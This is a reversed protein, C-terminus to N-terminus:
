ISRELDVVRYVTHLFRCNDKKPFELVEARPVSSTAEVMISFIQNSSWEYNYTTDMTAAIDSSYPYTKWSVVKYRLLKRSELEVHYGQLNAGVNLSNSKLSELKTAFTRLCTASLDIFFGRHLDVYSVHGTGEQQLMIRVQVRKMEFRLDKEIMFFQLNKVVKAKDLEFKEGCRYTGCRQSCSMHCCGAVEKASGKQYLEYVLAVNNFVKKHLESSDFAMGLLIFTDALD